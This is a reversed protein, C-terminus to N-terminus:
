LLCDQHRTWPLSTRCGVCCLTKELLTTSDLGMQEMKKCYEGVNIAEIQHYFIPLYIGTGNPADPFVYVSSYEGSFFTAHMSVGFYVFIGSFIGM